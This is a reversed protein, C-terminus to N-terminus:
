TLVLHTNIMLFYSLILLTVRMRKSHKEFLGTGRIQTKKKTIHEIDADCWLNHSDAFLM